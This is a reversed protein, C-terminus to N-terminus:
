DQIVVQRIVDGRGLADLADDIDDLKLRHTIMGELDLRGARWLGLIRTYDRRVDASGYVSGIIKKGDFFLEFPTFEVKQDARGAGVVVVTGGRRAAGWAARITQPTGVV